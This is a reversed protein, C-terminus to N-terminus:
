AFYRAGSITLLLLAIMWLLNLEGVPMALVVRAVIFTVFLAAALLVLIWNM